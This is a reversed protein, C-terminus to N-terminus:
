RSRERVLRQAEAIQAPSMMGALVERAKAGQRIDRSAALSLWLYAQVYDRPVGQGDRYMGGLDAQAEAYGQDAALHYWRVAEAYDQRVGAGHEFNVGLGWQAVASGQDAAKRFWKVAEAYDVPLGGMGNDYMVGLAAQANGYGQDAAKRIWKAAETYDQAVGDGDVYMIGLGAQAATNGQDALPQWVQLATAYDHRLYAAYGEEYTHWQYAGQGEESPGANTGRHAATPWSAAILLTIGAGAMATICCTAAWTRKTMKLEGFRHLFGVCGWIVFATPIALLLAWAGYYGVSKLIHYALWESLPPTM